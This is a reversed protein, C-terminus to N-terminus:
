AETPHATLVPEISLSDLSKQLREPPVGKERLERCLRPLSMAGAKEPDKEYALIKRVRHDEEALNVLQFYLTFARALRHADSLSLGKLVAALERRKEESFDQRLDKCLVRLREVLELFAAGERERIVQGLWTTLTRVSKRLQEDM